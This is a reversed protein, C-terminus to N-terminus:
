ANKVRKALAKEFASPGRRVTVFELKENDWTVAPIERRRETKLRKLKEKDSEM